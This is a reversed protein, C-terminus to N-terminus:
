FVYGLSLKPVINERWNTSAYYGFSTFIGVGISSNGSVYIGNLLIGAEHYGKNMTLFSANHATQGSLKGWGFAYHCGIQPENWSAKTRWANQIYRGFFQFQTQHYFSTSQLTEFTNAVSIGIQKIDQPRSASIANQYLLPTPRDTYAWRMNWNFVGHGPITFLQFVNLQFRNFVMESTSWNALPWAREYQLQVKPFASPKPLLIDGFFNSQERIAWNFTVRSLLVQSGSSGNYRYNDNYDNRQMTTELVLKKNAQFRYAVEVGLKDQYVMNSTYLFRAADQKFLNNTQYLIPAGVEAIDFDRFGKIQIRKQPGFNVKLYASYKARKDELGYGYSAGLLFFRSLRDATELGLGLRAREFANYKLIQTADLQVFGLPIKGTAVVKALKLKEDFKYEKSLSDIQVYTKKERDTLPVMRVSDWQQESLKKAASPLTEVAIQQFKVKELEPPDFVVSRVMNIGKGVVIAQVSDFSLQIFPLYIETSLQKPFWNQGNVIQYEQTIQVRNSSPPPNFPSAKVKEIAYGNTNIYLYGTLGTFDAGKKPKFYITFTTDRGNITTDKLSYFYRNLSGPALPSLYNINLIELQIDYFHFSQLGQAISSLAPDTFGSVRFAEITEKERYPPEFYHKSQTESIFYAQQLTFQQFEYANTDSPDLITDALKRRMNDDLDFVFKSYQEAIFGGHAQPHNQKRNEIAKEIIRVAPNIGPVVTIEQTEQAISRLILLGSVQESLVFTSDQYGMARIRIKQEPNTLEFYGDIDTLFAASFEPYIKAFSIGEKLGNDYVQYRQAFACFNLGLLLLLLIKTM